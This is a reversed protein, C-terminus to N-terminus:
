FNSHLTVMIVKFHMMGKTNIVNSNTKALWQWQPTLSNMEGPAGMALFTLVQPDTSCNPYFRGGFSLHATSCESLQLCFLRGLHSLKASLSSFPNPGCHEASSHNCRRSPATWRKPLRTRNREGHEAGADRSGCFFPWCVTLKNLWNSGWYLVM